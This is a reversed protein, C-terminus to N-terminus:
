LNKQHYRDREKKAVEAVQQLRGIIGAASWEWDDYSFIISIVDERIKQASDLPTIFNMHIRYQPDVLIKVMMEGPKLSQTNFFNIKLNEQPQFNEALSERTNLTITFNGDGEKNIKDLLEQLELLKSASFMKGNDEIVTRTKQTNTETNKLVTNFGILFMILFALLIAIVKM